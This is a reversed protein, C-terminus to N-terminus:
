LPRFRPFLRGSEFVSAPWRLGAPDHQGAASPARLCRKLAFDFALPNYAFLQNIGRREAPTLYGASVLGRTRILADIAPLPYDSGNVLSPHLAADRLTEALPAGCRNFQTMASVDGLVRGRYREDAALRRFLEYSSVRPHAGSADPAADLDQSKGLSACHAVVVRVGADLPRRLRLPNGLEQAEEAHVAQEEGAHSILVLGLAAMREFFPQCAASLPDMGMANPLWKVAIVGAEAVRELEDLADARYPHISACPVFREPHEGAIRLVYDNPTYFETREDLAVGQPSYHKDFALLLARGRHHDMLDVLRQVFLQDASADDSIGAAGKYFRTRVYRVPSRLSTAGPHVYCGSEGRGLGILHVHTDLVWRPDIGEWVQAQLAAGEAGLELADLRPASPVVFLVKAGYAVGGLGALALLRRRTLRPKSPAAGEESAAAVEEAAPAVGEAAPAAGEPPPEQSGPAQAPEGSDSM